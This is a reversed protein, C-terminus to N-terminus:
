WLFRGILNNSENLLNKTSCKMHEGNLRFSFSIGLLALM